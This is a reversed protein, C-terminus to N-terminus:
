GDKYEAVSETVCVTVMVKTPGCSWCCGDGDALPHVNQTGVTLVNHAVLACSRTLWVAREQAITHHISCLPAAFRCNVTVVIHEDVALGAGLVAVVVALEVAVIDTTSDCYVTTRINRLRAV